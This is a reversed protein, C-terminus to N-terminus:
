LLNNLKYDVINLCQLVFICRKIATEFSFKCIRKGQKKILHNLLETFSFFRLAFFLGYFLFAPCFLGAKDNNIRENIYIM